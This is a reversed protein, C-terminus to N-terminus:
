KSAGFGFVGGRILCAVVYHHDGRIGASAPASLEDALAEVDKFLTYFDKDDKGAGIRHAVSQQTNAGYMEVAIAGVGALGHWTDITRIANGLKRAHMTAVLRRQTDYIKSLIKTPKEGAVAQTSDTSFEQSPYVQSGFGLRVIGSVHFSAMSAKGSLAAAIKDIMKQARARQDVEVIAEIKESRAGRLDLDGEKFVVVGDDSAIRVELNEGDRNRWMWSGSAMRLFYRVALEQYGGHAEYADLFRAVQGVFSASNHMQPKKNNANFRATFEIMLLDADAPLLAQEVLAINANNISKAGMDVRDAPSKADYNAITGRITTAGVEVPAKVFTKVAADFVDAVGKFGVGARVGSMIGESLEVGRAYSLNSPPSEKKAMIEEKLNINVM